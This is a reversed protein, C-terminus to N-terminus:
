DPLKVSNPLNLLEIEESPHMIKYTEYTHLFMKFCEDISKKAEVIEWGKGQIRKNAKDPGRKASKLWIVGTRDVKEGSTEEYAKAYAAMQLHYSEYVNNSTKIDLLWKEGNLEILLDLTGCYRHTDSVMFEESMLLKPKHTTWFDVFGLIM